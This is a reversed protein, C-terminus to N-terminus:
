NTPTVRTGEIKVTEEGDCLWRRVREEQEKGFGPWISGLKERYDDDNVAKLWGRFCQKDETKALRDVYDYDVMSRLKCDMENAKESHTDALNELEDPDQKLNFLQPQYGAYAPM